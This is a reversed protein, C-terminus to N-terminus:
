LGGHLQHPQRQDPRSPRRGPQHHGHARHRGLHGLQRDLHLGRQPQHGCGPGGRGRHHRDGHRQHDHRERGRHLHPRHREGHRRPNGRGHQRHLTVDGTAFGTVAESFVVTFNIPSASTPDAQGGAQNITVTPATPTTNVSNDTFTSATNANGATDQAVGAAITAIVTGSTTMGSVAVTYTPGTGSVTGVLTGGATSGTFTVDGTAFGTVAESFVVTFNIPSASTPDAQGGAQNITVTPATVDWTVSNDTSTSAANPNTDADQAVGAAITAVVTGSTTMGSVAVTYTPGTGTVTGVLTGGATSGAFSVDGTAFGTVAESFVVTFNIPSASTPDAQGGAQNITVTPAAAFDYNVSNDTSTSATNANGATDQAVGAAITAIVTGSTTMGSVAVTYTPGTGSM